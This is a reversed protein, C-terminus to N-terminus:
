EFEFLPEPLEASEGSFEISLTVGMKKTIGELSERMAQRPIHHLISALTLILDANRKCSPCHLQARQGEDKTEAPVKCRACVIKESTTAM